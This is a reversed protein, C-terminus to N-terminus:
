EQEDELLKNVDSEVKRLIEQCYRALRQAEALQGTLESLELDSSEVAKVIEELRLMAEEYTLEKKM